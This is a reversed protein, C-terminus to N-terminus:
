ILVQAIGPVLHATEGNLSALANQRVPKSLGYGAGFILFPDRAAGNKFKQRYLSNADCSARGGKENAEREM